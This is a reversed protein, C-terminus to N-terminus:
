FNAFYFVSIRSSHQTAPHQDLAPLHHVSVAPLPRVDVDLIADDPVMESFMGYIRDWIKDYEIPCM